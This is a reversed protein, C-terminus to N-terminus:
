QLGYLSIFLLFSIGLGGFILLNKQTPTLNNVGFGYTLNEQFGSSTGLPGLNQFQSTKVDCVPCRWSTPLEAFPTGPSIEHKSDGRDPEYVYGCVRCEYRDLVQIEAAPESMAIATYISPRRIKLM